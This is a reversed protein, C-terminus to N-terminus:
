LLEIWARKPKPGISHSLVGDFKSGLQELPFTKEFNLANFPVFNVFEVHMTSDYEDLLCNM